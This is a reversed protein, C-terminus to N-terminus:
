KKDVSFNTTGFCIKGNKTIGEVFVVYQALEDSTYFNINAKGNGMNLEPDWFLTPRYDPQPNNINDLAYSPSYFKQAKHFGRISTVIRGKVYNDAYEVAGAGTKRYISIVGNGGKSGFMALNGGSKLVEVKDIETMLLNKIERIIGEAGSGLGSIEMGDIMFLPMGGGRISIQDGSIILGAVKGELYDLVNQYQYDANTVTLSKDPTPYIRFYGDDKIARKKIIDVDSLLISGKEPDFGLEKMSRFSNIRNFNRNLDLDLCTNKISGFSVVSDMKLRPDLRIEANRTGNKTKASIMLKTLNRIYIREFNFKGQQDTTTKEITFNGGASALTM